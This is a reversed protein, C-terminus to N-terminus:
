EKIMRTETYLYKGALTYGIPWLLDPSASSMPVRTAVVVTDGSRAGPTYDVELGQQLRPSLVKRIETEVQDSDVGALAAARAGVRNAEVVSSRAYFLMSFELLGMVIIGLIPLTLVM